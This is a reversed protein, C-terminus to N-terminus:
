ADARWGKCPCDREGNHAHMCARPKSGRYEVTEHYEEGHDCCPKRGVVLSGRVYDHKIKSDQEWRSAEYKAAYEDTWASLIEPKQEPGQTFKRVIFVHVAEEPESV